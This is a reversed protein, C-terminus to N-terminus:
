QDFYGYLMQVEERIAKCADARGSREIENLLNLIHVCIPLVDKSKIVEPQFRQEHIITSALKDRSTQKFFAQDELWQCDAPDLAVSIRKKNNM